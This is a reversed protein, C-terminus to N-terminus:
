VPSASCVLFAWKHGAEPTTLGAVGKDIFINSARTVFVKINVIILNQEVLIGADPAFTAETDGRFVGRSGGVIFMRHSLALNRFDSTRNELFIGSTTLRITWLKIQFYFIIFHFVSFRLNFKISFCEYNNIKKGPQWQRFLNLYVFLNRHM